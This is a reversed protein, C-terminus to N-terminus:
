IGQINKSCYYLALMSIVYTIRFNNWTMIESLQSFFLKRFPRICYTMDESASPGLSYIVV